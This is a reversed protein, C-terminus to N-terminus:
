QNNISLEWDIFCDGQSSCRGAVVASFLGIIVLKHTVTNHTDIPELTTPLIIRSFLCLRKFSGVVATYNFLSGNNYVTPNRKYNTIMCFILIMSRAHLIQHFALKM